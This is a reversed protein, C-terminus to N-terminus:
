QEPKCEQESLLRAKIQAYMYDLFERRKENERYLTNPGIIDYFTIKELETAPLLEGRKFKHVRAAHAMKQKQWEKEQELDRMWNGNSCRWSQSSPYFYIVKGYMIHSMGAFNVGWGDPEEKELCSMGEEVTIHIRQALVPTVSLLLVTLVVNKLLLKMKLFEGKSTEVDGVFEFLLQGDESATPPLRAEGQGPYLVALSFPYSPSGDAKGAGQSATSSDDHISRVPNM